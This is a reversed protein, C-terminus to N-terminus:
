GSTWKMFSSPTIVCKFHYRSSLVVMHILSALHSMAILHVHRYEAPKYPQLSGEEDSEMFDSNDPNYDPFPDDDDQDFVTGCKFQWVPNSADFLICMQFDESIAWVESMGELIRGRVPRDILSCDTTQKYPIPPSNSTRTAGSRRSACIAPPPRPADNTLSVQNAKHKSKNPAM